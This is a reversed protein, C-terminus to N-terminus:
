VFGQLCQQLNVHQIPQQIFQAIVQNRPRRQDLRGALPDQLQQLRARWGLAISRTAKPGNLFGKCPLVCPLRGALCPPLFRKLFRPEAATNPCHHRYSGVRKWPTMGWRKGKQNSLGRLSGLVGPM